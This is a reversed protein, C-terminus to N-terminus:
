GTRRRPQRAPRKPAKATSAPTEGHAAVDAEAADLIAAALLDERMEALTEVQDTRGYLALLKISEPAALFLRFLAQCLQRNNIPGRNNAWVEFQDWMARPIDAEFKRDNPGRAM